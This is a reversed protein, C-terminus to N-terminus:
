KNTIKEILWILDTVFPKLQKETKEINQANGEADFENPTDIVTFATPLVLANLKLLLGQLEKVTMLPPVMGDTVTSVAVIKRKWEKYYLDIVNKLSAPFGGNYVPSVIILADANNFKETFDLLAESPNKQFVLRETFLPFNYAKLDLFTIEALQKEEFYKKLFLAVRHSMRDGDRVSSSLITIKKM